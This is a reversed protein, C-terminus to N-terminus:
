VLSCIASRAFRPTIQPLDEREPNEGDHQAGAHSVRLRAVDDDVADPEGVSLDGRQLLLVAHLDVVAVVPVVTLHARPTEAAARRHSEDNRAEPETSREAAVGGVSVGADHDVAALQVPEVHVPELLDRGHVAPGVPHVGAAVEAQDVPRHQPVDPREALARPAAALADQARVVLRARDDDATASGLWEESLLRFSSVMGRTAGMVPLDSTGVSCWATTSETTFTNPPTAPGNLMRSLPGFSASRISESTVNKRSVVTTSGLSRDIAMRLATRSRSAAYTHAAWTPAARRLPRRSSTMSRIRALPSGPLSGASSRSTTTYARWSM